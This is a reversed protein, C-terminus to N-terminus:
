RNPGPMASRHLEYLGTEDNEILEYVMGQHIAFLDVAVGFKPMINWSPLSLFVSDSVSGDEALRLVEHGSDKLRYTTVFLGGDGAIMSRVAPFYEYFHMVNKVMPWVEAEEIRFVNILRTQYERDISLREFPHSRDVLKKGDGADFVMLRFGDSSDVIFIKGKWVQADLCHGVMNFSEFGRATGSNVDWKGKYLSKLEAFVPDVLIFELFSTVTKTEFHRKVALFKKGLPILRMWLPDVKDEKLFRGDRAFCSLKGRFYLAYGDKTVSLYPTRRMEGPGEGKKCFSAALRGGNLDYSFVMKEGSQVVLLRDGDVTMFVPQTLEPLPFVMGGFLCASGAIMVLMFRFCQIM